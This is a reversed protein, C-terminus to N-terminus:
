SSEIKKAVLRNRIAMTVADETEARCNTIMIDRPKWGLMGLFMGAM